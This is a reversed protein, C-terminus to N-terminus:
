RRPAKLRDLDLEYKAIRLGMIRETIGLKRAAQAMNGRTEKLADVVLEREVLELTHKLTGLLATGSSQGTQLTPPLDRAQLVGDNSLLIAREICNELERVNGPWHYALLMDIAPTSIRRVTKGHMRNFREVFTDALLLIDARRERLPPLRIPFVNLRYYLDERFVGAAVSSELDRNTAAVLRVDVELTNTGGVREFQREQLVRLLKVQMNASMEGIEDLFLTGGDALEFRGKRQAVAGTFAGKEHGFLESEIVTEPLSACNVKIFPKKSRPSHEHIASAVLEKGTGSEGLILVTTSSPAVQSTLEFVSLMAKSSGVINKPRFRQELEARLRENERALQRAETRAKRRLNVADGVLSAIISLLRADNELDVTGDVVRDASLTGIVEGDVVIPVCVFALDRGKPAVRAGTQNTFRKDESVRPVIVPSGDQIVQGTLGEGFRWRARRRQAETLGTAVEISISEREQDLLTMTGRLLGLRAAMQELVPTLVEPLELKGRLSRSIDFLL